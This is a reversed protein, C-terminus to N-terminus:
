VRDFQQNPRSNNRGHKREYQSQCSFLYYLYKQIFIFNKKCHFIDNLQMRILIVVVIHVILMIPHFKV